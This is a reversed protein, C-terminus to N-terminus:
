YVAQTCPTYARKFNEIFQILLFFLFISTERRKALPADRVTTASFLESFGANYAIIQIQEQLIIVPGRALLEKLVVRYTSAM